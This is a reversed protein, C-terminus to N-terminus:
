RSLSMSSVATTAHRLRRAETEAVTAAASLLALVDSRTRERRDNWRALDVVRAARVGPPPTGGVPRDPGRHLAHWVVDLTRQALPGSTAEPGGAAHVVAGVLCAEDFAGDRPDVPHRRDRDDVCAYLTKQTWGSRIVAGADGLVAGIHHLEALRATRRDEAALSRHQRLRDLLGWHVIM